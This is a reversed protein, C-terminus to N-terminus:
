AEMSMLKRPQVAELAAEFARLASRQDEAEPLAERAGRAIMEAQRRLAERDAARRTVPAVSLDISRQLRFPSYTEGVHCVRKLHVSALLGAVLGALPTAGLVVFDFSDDAM